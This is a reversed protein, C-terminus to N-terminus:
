EEQEKSQVAAKAQAEIINAIMKTRKATHHPTRGVIREHAKILDPESMKNLEDVPYSSPAKNAEADGAGSSAAGDQGGVGGGESGEVEDDGDDMQGHRQKIRQLVDKIEDSDGEDLQLAELEKQEAVEQAALDAERDADIKALLAARQMRNANKEEDDHDYKRPM